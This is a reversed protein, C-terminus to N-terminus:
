LSIIKVSPVMWLLLLCLASKDAYKLVELNIMKM